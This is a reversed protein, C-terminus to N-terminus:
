QIHHQFDYRQMCLLMRQLRKPAHQILKQSISVLPKHDTEITVKHGYIYQDFKECGCVIALMEKEIQAYKRETETMGRTGSAVPQGQQLLAYGWGVRPYIM